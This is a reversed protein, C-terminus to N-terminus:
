GVTRRARPVVSGIPTSVDPAEAVFLVYQFDGYNAPANTINAFDIDILGDGTVCWPQPWVSVPPYTFNGGSAQGNFQDAFITEGSCSAKLQVFFDASGNPGFAAQSGWIWSGRPIRTQFQARGFPGTLLLSGTQVNASEPLVYARFLYQSARRLPDMQDVAMELYRNNLGTMFTTIAFADCPQQPTIANAPM